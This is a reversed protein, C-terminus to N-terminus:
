MRWLGQCGQEVKNAVAVSETEPMADHTLMQGFTQDADDERDERTEPAWQGRQQAIELLKKGM